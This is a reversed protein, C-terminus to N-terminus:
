KNFMKVTTEIGNIFIFLLLLAIIIFMWLKFKSVLKERWTPPPTYTSGGYYQKAYNVYEIYDIVIDGNQYLENPGQVHVTNKGSKQNNRKELYTDLLEASFLLLGEENAQVYSEAAGGGYEKIIFIADEKNVEQSIKEVLEKIENEM